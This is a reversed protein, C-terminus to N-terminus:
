EAMIQGLRRGAAAAIPRGLVRILTRRDPGPLRWLLEPSLRQVLPCSPAPRPHFGGLLLAAGAREALSEARASRAYWPFCLQRAAPNPCEAEIREFSSRMDAAVAADADRRSEYAGTRPALRSLERLGSRRRFVDEGRERVFRRCREVGDPDPLFAARATYRPRGRYIPTGPAPLEDGRFRPIPVNAAFGIDTGPDVFGLVTPSVPVRHHYLSHSGVELAGSAVAARLETWGALGRGTREPVLGAVVFAVGRFRYRQLLPVATRVLSEDGDDFTLAVTRGDPAVDGAAYAALEEAGATRYGGCQLLALDNEFSDDVGHYAFVPLINVRGGYVFGPLAGGAFAAFRPLTKELSRWVLISHLIM